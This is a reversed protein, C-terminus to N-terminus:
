EEVEIDELGLRVLENRFVSWEWAEWHEWWGQERVYTILDNAYDKAPNAVGVKDYKRVTLFPQEDYLDRAARLIAITEIDIYDNM